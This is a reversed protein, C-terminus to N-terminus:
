WAVRHTHMCTQIYTHIYSYALIYTHISTHIFLHTYTHIQLHICIYSYGGDSHESIDSMQSRASNTPTNGASLQLVNDTGCDLIRRCRTIEKNLQEEEKSLVLTIENAIQTLDGM